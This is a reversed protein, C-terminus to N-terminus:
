STSHGGSTTLPGTVAGGDTATLPAPRIPRARRAVRVAAQRKWWLWGSTVILVLPSLGFLTWAIRGAMGLAEGSHLPFLWSLLVDGALARLPDRADVVTGDPALRLRTDGTDKRPEEPQLLRVDYWPAKESPLVIRSWTAEPFYREADTIMADPSAVSARSGIHPAAMAAPLTPLVAAVLARGQKPFCMYAGTSAMLLLFPLMWFGTARHLDYTRRRVPADRKITLTRIWSHLSSTRPWASVAGTVAVLLLVLGGVGVLVHGLEGLLLSRHLEYLAPVLHRRDIRAAGWQRSGLYQGCRADIFHQVRADGTGSWVAYAAGPVEPAFVQSANTAGPQAAHVALVRAVPQGRVGSSPAICHTRPAFWDPNLARDLNGHWALLAGTLGLMAFWLGFALAVWRHLRM